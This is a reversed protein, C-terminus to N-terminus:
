DKKKYSTPTNLKTYKKYFIDYDIPSITKLKSGYKEIRDDIIRQRQMNTINGLAKHLEHIRGTLYKVEAYKEISADLEEKATLM